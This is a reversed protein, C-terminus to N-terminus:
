RSINDGLNIVVYFRSENKMGPLEIVQIFMVLCYYALTICVHIENVVYRAYIDSGTNFFCLTGFYSFM